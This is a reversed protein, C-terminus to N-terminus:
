TEDNIVVTVSQTSKIKRAKVVLDVKGTALSIAYPPGHVVGAPAGDLHYEFKNSMDAGTIVLTNLGVIEQAPSDADASIANLLTTGAM